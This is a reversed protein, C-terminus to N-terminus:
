VRDARVTQLEQLRGLSLALWGALGYVNNPSLTIGLAVAYTDLAQVVAAEERSVVREGTPRWDWLAQVQAPTM